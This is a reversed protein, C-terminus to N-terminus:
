YTLRMISKYFKDKDIRSHIRTRLSGMHTVNEKLATRYDNLLGGHLTIDPAIPLRVEISTSQGTSDDMAARTRYIDDWPGESRDHRTHSTLPLAKKRYILLPPAKNTYIRAIHLQRKGKKRSIMRYDETVAQHPTGAYEMTYGHKRFNSGLLMNHITGLFRLMDKDYVNTPHKNLIVGKYAQLNKVMGQLRDSTKAQRILMQSTRANSWEAVYKAILTDAIDQDSFEFPMDITNRKDKYKVDEPFLYAYTMLLASEFDTHNTAHIGTKQRTFFIDATDAWTRVMYPTRKEYPGAVHTRRFGKGKSAVYGSLVEGGVFPVLFRKQDYVRVSKVATKESGHHWLKTNGETKKMGTKISDIIYGKPIGALEMRKRRSPGVLGEKVASKDPNWDEIIGELESRKLLYSEALAFEVPDILVSSERRPIIIGYRRATLAPYDNKFQKM